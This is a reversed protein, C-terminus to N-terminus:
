GQEPHHCPRRPHPDGPTSAARQSRSLVGGGPRKIIGLERLKRDQAQARVEMEDLQMLRQTTSFRRRKKKSRYELPKPGKSLAPMKGYRARYEAKTGMFTVAGGRRRTPQEDYRAAFAQLEADTM